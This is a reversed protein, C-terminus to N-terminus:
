SDFSSLLKIQMAQVHTQEPPQLLCQPPEKTTAMAMKGEKEEEEKKKKHHHHHNKDLCFLVDGGGISFTATRDLYMPGDTHPMIGGSADYENILVHNPPHTEPFAKIQVLVKALTQLLGYLRLSVDHLRPNHNDIIDCCCPKQTLDFVAVNRQSYYLRTWTGNHPHQQQQQQQQQQSQNKGNDNSSSSSRGGNSRSSCDLPSCCCALLLSEDLNDLLLKTFEPTLFEPMYYVDSLTAVLPLSSSSSSSSSSSASVSPPHMM